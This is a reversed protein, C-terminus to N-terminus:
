FTRCVAEWRTWNTNRVACFLFAPVVHGLGAQAVDDAPVLTDRPGRGHAASPLVRGDLGEPVLLLILAAVLPALVILSLLGM